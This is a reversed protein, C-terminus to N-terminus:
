CYYILNVTMGRSDLQIKTEDEDKSSKAKKSTTKWLYRNGIQFM